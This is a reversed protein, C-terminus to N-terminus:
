RKIWSGQKVRESLVSNFLLSRASSLYMSKLHRQKVKKNQLLLDEAHVLNQGGFGFRQEGFYNPVGSAKIRELRHSLEDSQGSLEAITIKFRNSQHVGRRLKKRHWTQQLVQLNQENIESWAFVDRKPLHVGFWQTTVANRDKLGSYSVDRAPVGAFRALKRAVSETNEGTKQILLFCHEGEGSPEFGLQEEVQFHAAESRIVGRADPTGFATDFGQQFRELLM